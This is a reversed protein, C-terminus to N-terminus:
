FRYTYRGALTRPQGLYGYVYESSDADRPGAGLGTAYQRDFVNQLHLSLTHHHQEDVFYRTSLDLLPYSGYEARGSETPLGSRWEAGIYVASATIGFPAGRPHYDITAKVQQRPVEDIQQNGQEVSRSYTYSADASFGPYDAGVNLEAGKSIVTGAVNGFVAQQTTDDFSAYDILNRVDRWFGVLEWKLHRDAVHSGISMNVNTSKEPHLHPNGREDFPDDAFLEEATPLRFATGAQGKVFLTDSLEHRGSVSWIAANRGMAPANFRVGAAFVTHAMLESSTAVQGYVANVSESQQAIVLVADHGEYNQFDYGLTEDFASNLKFRAMLNVGRDQYGWFGDDEVTAVERPSGVVNDFQTYHSYWWHWYGKAFLQLSAGPQYDLKSTLLNEDRDNFAQRILFPKLDDLQATTHQLLASYRLADSFDYAYKAGMSYVHYARDRESASPQIDQDRFPQYGKSADISAYAVVHHGGFADRFYGDAHASTNTDGGASVAGDPTDSFQKTVVDVAGAAAQTGYFLAQGGELVHVSDVMSSPVTDLPTTGAYLRNNLRVGDLLWLVDETRSGLLSANVYDFPGTKSEVFLGPSLMKLTQSIDVFGGNAIQEATISDVRVGQNEIISPVQEELRTASIVVPEIDDGSGARVPMASLWACAGLVVGSRFFMSSSVM